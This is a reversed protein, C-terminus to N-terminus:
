GRPGFISRGSPNSTHVDREDYARVPGAEFVPDAETAGSVMSQFSSPGDVDTATTTMAAELAARAVPTTEVVTDKARTVFVSCCPKTKAAPRGRPKLKPPEPEPSLTDSGYFVSNRIACQLGIGIGVPGACNNSTLRTNQVTLFV